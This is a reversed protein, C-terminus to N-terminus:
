DFPHLSPSRGTTLAAVVAVACGAVCPWAFLDGVRAYVTPVAGLPVEAVMTPAGSFHDTLGLVRRWPDFVGSLGSSSAARV